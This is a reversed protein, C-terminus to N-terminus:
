LSKVNQVEQHDCKSLSEGLLLLQSLETLPYLGKSKHSTHSQQSSHMKRVSMATIVKFSIHMPSSHHIAISTPNPTSDSFEGPPVVSICPCCTLFSPRVLYREPIENINSSILVDMILSLSYQQQNNIVNSIRHKTQIYNNHIKGSVEFHKFYMIPHVITYYTKTPYITCVTISSLHKRWTRFENEVM